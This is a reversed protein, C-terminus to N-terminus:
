CTFYSVVNEAKGKTRSINGMKLTYSPIKAKYLVANTLHGWDFELEEAVMELGIGIVLNAIVM